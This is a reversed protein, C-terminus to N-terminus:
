TRSKIAHRDATMQGRELLCRVAEHSIGGMIQGIRDLPYDRARLSMAERQRMTLAPCRALKRAELADLDPEHPPEVRVHSPVPPMVEASLGTRTDYSIEVTPPTRRQKGPLMARATQLDKLAAFKEESDTLTNARWQLFWANRRADRVEDRMEPDGVWTAGRAGPYPGIPTIPPTIPPPPDAKMGISRFWDKFSQRKKM